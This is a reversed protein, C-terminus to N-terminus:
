TGSETSYVQHSSTLAKSGIRAVWDSSISKAQETICKAPQRSENISGKLISELEPVHYIRIIM